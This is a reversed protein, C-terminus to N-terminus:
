AVQPQFYQFWESVREDEVIGLAEFIDHAFETAATGSATILFETRVSPASRYLAQGRYVGSNATLYDLHNSTHAARNLLGLEALFLTAGCIAAVPIGHLLCHAVLPTIAENKGSEWAAGGPLILMGTNENDIDALDTDPLFDVDPMVTMGSMSRVSEKRIAITKLQCAASRRIGVAALSTEYDAFGDFVFLYCTKKRTKM